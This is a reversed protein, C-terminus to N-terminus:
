LGLNVGLTVTRTGPYNGDDWGLEIDTNGRSSTEPDYGTYDTWTFLNQGTVYVRMTRSAFAGRYREPVNFGLTVNQLRLYSGDEVWRSTMADYPAIGIGTITNSPNTPSWYDLVSALANGTSGPTELALRTLNVLENGHVGRFVVSLDLAGYRVSTNFGYTFDPLANGIITRDLENIVGNGDLDRIRDGGLV